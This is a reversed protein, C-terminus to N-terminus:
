CDKRTWELGGNINDSQLTPSPAAKEEALGALAAVLVAALMCGFILGTLMRTTATNTWWGLFPLLADFSIPLCAMLIWSPNIKMLMPRPRGATLFLSTLAMGLYIGCCRHCFAWPFGLISFSRDPNQHCVPAFLIYLLASPLVHGKSALVPAAAGALFLLVFLTNIGLYAFRHGQDIRIRM